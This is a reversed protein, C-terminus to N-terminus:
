SPMRESTGLISGSNYWRLATVGQDVLIISKTYKGQLPWREEGNEPYVEGNESYVTRCAVRLVGSRSFSVARPQGDIVTSYKSHYYHFFHTTRTQVGDIM